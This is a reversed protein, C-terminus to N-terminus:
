GLVAEENATHHRYLRAQNPTSTCRVLSFYLQNTELGLWMPRPMGAAFGTVFIGFDQRRQNLSHWRRDCGVSVGVGLEAIIEKVDGKTKLM